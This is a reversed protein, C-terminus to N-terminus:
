PKSARSMSRRLRHADAKKVYEDDYIGGRDSHVIVNRPNGRAELASTLPVLSLKGNQETSIACGVVRRSILDIM